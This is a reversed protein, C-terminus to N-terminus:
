FIFLVASVTLGCILAYSDFMNMSKRLDNKGGSNIEVTVRTSALKIGACSFTVALSYVTTILQFLGIGASGIKSTLYANFSVAVSRMVLNTVTMILTNKMLNTRFNM